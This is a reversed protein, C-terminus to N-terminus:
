ETASFRKGHSLAILFNMCEGPGSIGADEVKGSTRRPSFSLLVRVLFVPFVDALVTSRFPSVLYETNRDGVRDGM